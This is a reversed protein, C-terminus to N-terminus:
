MTMEIEDTASNVPFQRIRKKPIRPLTKALYEFTKEDFRQPRSELLSHIEHEGEATGVYRWDDLVHIDSKESVAIPGSYPWRPLRLPLIAAVVKALHQLREKRAGCPAGEYLACGTCPQAESTPLGLLAKCLNQSCALRHLCNLAKKESDFIGYFDDGIINNETLPVIQVCPYIDPQVKWACHNKFTQRSSAESQCIMPQLKLYAGIPGRTRRWTINRVKSSFALAKASIRDLRFYSMVQRKLNNAKAMRLVQENEGWLAYIGPGEPLRDILAQSLHSPLVPGVLLKNIVIELYTAPFEIQMMQWFQRVVDADPLARHRITTTLRHRRILADLDHDGHMPYLKRSLMVSCLVQPQYDLGMRQFESRLFGFDFRANHAILLCGSLRKYLDAVIDKFRPKDRIASASFGSYIRSGEGIPKGPNLLETWETTGTPEVVIVGIEAIRDTSPSLGTTELDVFALRTPLPM